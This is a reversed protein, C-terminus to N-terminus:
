MYLFAADTLHDMDPKKMTEAFRVTGAGITHMDDTKYITYLLNNM